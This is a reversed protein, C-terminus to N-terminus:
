AWLIAVHKNKIRNLQSQGGCDKKKFRKTLMKEELSWNQMKRLTVSETLEAQM